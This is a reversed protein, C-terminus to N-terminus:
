CQAMNAVNCSILKIGPIIGFKFKKSVFQTVNSYNPKVVADKIEAQRGM